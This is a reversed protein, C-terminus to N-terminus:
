QCVPTKDISITRGHRQFEAWHPPDNDPEHRSRRVPFQRCAGEFTRSLHSFAEHETWESPDIEHLMHDPRMM